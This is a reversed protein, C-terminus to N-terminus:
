TTGSGGAGCLNGPREDASNWVLTHIGYGDLM